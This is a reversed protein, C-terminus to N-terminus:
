DRPLDLEAGGLPGASPPRTPARVASPDDGAGAPPALRDWLTPWLVIHWDAGRRSMLFPHDASDGDIGICLYYDVLVLRPDGSSRLFEQEISAITRHADPTLAVAHFRAVLSPDSDLASLDIAHDTAAGVFQESRHVFALRTSRADLKPGPVGRIAALAPSRDEESDSARLRVADERTLADAILWRTMPDVLSWATTLADTVAALQSDDTAGGGQDWLRCRELEAANRCWALVTSAPGTALDGTTEVPALWGRSPGISWGSGM